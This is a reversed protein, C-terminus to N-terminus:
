GANYLIFFFVYSLARNLRDAGTVNEVDLQMNISTWLDYDYDFDFAPKSSGHYRWQNNSRLPFDIAPNEAAAAFKKTILFRSRFVSMEIEGCKRTLPFYDHLIKSITTDEGLFMHIAM